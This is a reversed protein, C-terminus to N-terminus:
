TEIVPEAEEPGIGAIPVGGGDEVGTIGEIVDGGGFVWGDGVV